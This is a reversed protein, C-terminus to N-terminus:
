VKGAWNLIAPFKLSFMLNLENFCAVICSECPLAPQNLFAKKLGGELCNGPKVRGMADGCPYVDGNADIYCYLRGAWCRYRASRKKRYAESLDGWELLAKLYPESSAIVGKMDTRKRRLLTELAFRYRVDETKLDPGAENLHFARPVLESTHTFYLLHFNARFGYKKATDLIFGTQDINRECLVTTTWFPKNMSKLVAMAEQLVRFSGKGRLDDHVAEPGDFSLFFLDIDKLKDRIQPFRFGTTAMTVFLGRERARGAIKDLDERLAPEGGVLHLRKNGLAALEDVIRLAQAATCEQKHM